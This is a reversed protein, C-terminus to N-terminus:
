IYLSGIGTINITILSIREYLEEFDGSKKIDKKYILLCEFAKKLVSLSIKRQHSYKKGCPTRANGAKELVVKLSIANKFDNLEKQINKRCYCKYHKVIDSLTPKWNVPIGSCSSKGQLSNRKVGFCGVANKM